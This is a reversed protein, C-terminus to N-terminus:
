RITYFTQSAKALENEFDAQLGARKESHSRRSLNHQALWSCIADAEHVYQVSGNDIVDHFLGAGRQSWIASPVGLDMAEYIITSSGTLVVDSDLLQEFVPRDSDTNVEKESLGLAEIAEQLRDRGMPHLRFVWKYRTKTQKYAQQLGESVIPEAGYVFPVLITMKANEVAQSSAPNNTLFRQEQLLRLVNGGVATKLQSKPSQDIYSASRDDRCWFIDPMMEPRTKSNNSWDLGLFHEVNMGGHQIDVVTINKKKAAICIAFVGTFSSLYIVKPRVADFLQEYYVVQRAQVELRALMLDVSLGLEFGQAAIIDLIAQIDKRIKHSIAWERIDRPKRLSLPMTKQIQPMIQTAVLYTGDDSRPDEDVLTLASRDDAMLHRLSDTQPHYYNNEETKYYQRARNIFLIDAAPLEEFYSAKYVQKALDYWKFKGDRFLDISSDRLSIEPAAERWHRFDNWYGLTASDRQAATATQDAAPVGMKLKSKIIIALIVWYNFGDCTLKNTNIRQKITHFLDPFEAEGPKKKKQTMDSSVETEESQKIEVDHGKFIGFSSM